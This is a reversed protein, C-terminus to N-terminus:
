FFFCPPMVFHSMRYHRYFFLDQRSYPSSILSSIFKISQDLFTVDQPPGTVYVNLSSPRVHGVAICIGVRAAQFIHWAHSCAHECDSCIFFLPNHCSWVQSPISERENDRAPVCVRAILLFVFHLEEYFLDFIYQMAYFPQLYTKLHIYRHKYFLIM